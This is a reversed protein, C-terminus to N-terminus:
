IARIESGLILTMARVWLRPTAAPIVSPTVMADASIMANKAESSTACGLYM